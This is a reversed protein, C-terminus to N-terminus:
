LSTHGGERQQRVERRDSDTNTAGRRYARQREHFQVSLRQSRAHRSLGNSWARRCPPYRPQCPYRGRRYVRAPASEVIDSIDPPMELGISCIHCLALRGARINNISHLHTRKKLFLVRVSVTDESNARGPLGAGTDVTEAGILGVAPEPGAHLASDAQDGVVGGREALCLILDRTREGDM